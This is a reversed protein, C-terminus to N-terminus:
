SPMPQHLRHPTGSRGTGPIPGSWHRGWFRRDAGHLPTPLEPHGAGAGPLPGGAPGPLGGRHGPDVAGPQAPDEPDPGASASGPWHLEPHIAPLLVGVGSVDEGTERHHAVALHNPEGSEWDLTQHVGKRGCTGSLTGGGPRAPMQNPQGDAGCRSPGAAGSGGPVPPGGVDPQPHRHWRPVHSRVAPPTAAGPGDAEPLHGPGWARWVPSGPLPVAGGTNCLGDEGECPPWRCRSTGEPSTWPASSGLRDWGSSSSMWEPCRTPTVSPCKMSSGSITASTGAGM